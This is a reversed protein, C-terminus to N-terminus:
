TMISFNLGINTRNFFNHKIRHLMESANESTSSCKPSSVFNFITWDFWVSPPLQNTRWFQFCKSKCELRINRLQLPKQITISLQFFNLYSVDTGEVISSNHFRQFMPHNLFKCQGVNRSDPFFFNFSCRRPWEDGWIAHTKLLNAAAFTGRSCKSNNNSSTSKSSPIVAAIHLIWVNFVNQKVKSLISVEWKNRNQPFKLSNISKWTFENVMTFQSWSSNSFM